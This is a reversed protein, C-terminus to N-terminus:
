SADEESTLLNPWLMASNTPGLCYIWSPLALGLTQWFKQPYKCVVLPTPLIAVNHVFALHSKSLNCESTSWKADCRQSHILADPLTRKWPLRWICHTPRSIRDSQAIAWFWPGWPKKTRKWVGNECVQRSNKRIIAYNKHTQLSFVYGCPMIDEKKCVLWSFEAPAKPMGSKLDGGAIPSERYHTFTGALDGAM